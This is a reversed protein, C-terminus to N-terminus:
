REIAESILYNWLNKEKLLREMLKRFTKISFQKKNQYLIETFKLNNQIM